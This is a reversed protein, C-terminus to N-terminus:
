LHINEFADYRGRSRGQEESGESRVESAVSMTAHTLGDTFTSITRATLSYRTGKVRRREPVGHKYKKNEDYSIMVVDGDEVLVTDKHFKFDRAAGVSLSVITSGEAIDMWKDHHM